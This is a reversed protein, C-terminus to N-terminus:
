ISTSTSTRVIASPPRRTQYVRSTRHRGRTGEGHDTRGQLEEKRLRPDGRVEQGRKGRDRRVPLRGHKGQFYAGVVQIRPCSEMPPDGRRQHIDTAAQGDRGDGAIKVRPTEVSM